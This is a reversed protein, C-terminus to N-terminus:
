TMDCHYGGPLRPFCTKKSTGKSRFLILTKNILFFPPILYQAPLRCCRGFPDWEWLMGITPLIRCWGRSAWLRHLWRRKLILPVWRPWYLIAVTFLNKLDWIWQSQCGWFPSWRPPGPNILHFGRFFPSPDGQASLDEKSAQHHVYNHQPLWYLLPSCFSELFKLNQSGLAAESLLWCFTLTRLWGDKLFYISGVPQILSFASGKGISGQSAFAM